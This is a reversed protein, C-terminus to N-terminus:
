VPVRVPVASATTSENGLEGNGNEGWCFVQDDVTTACTHVAGTTIATAAAPLAIPTPETSSGGPSSTHQGWDTTGWCSVVGDETLACTHRLSASLAIARGSLSSLVPESHSDNTGEGLQGWGNEGWCYTRADELAACTHGRGAAVFAAPGPLEVQLPDAIAADSDNTYGRGLQGSTNAGWCFVDGVVTSACTHNGGAALSTMTPLDIRRPSEILDTGEEGIQGNTNRGWCYGEGGETLACTHDEGASLASVPAPIDIRVPETSPDTTGTGLQGFTNYGWCYTEGDDLAACTHERGTGLASAPASLEVSVPSYRSDATGDGLQGSANLGWCSVDGFSDACTFWGGASVTFVDNGTPSAAPVGAAAAGEGGSDPWYVAVGVAAAIVAVVAGLTALTRTSRRLPKSADPPRSARVPVTPAAAPRGSRGTAILAGRAVVTKPDDLTAVPGVQGLVSHVLPIRSSGGTLYIAQLRDRPVGGQTLATRVLSAAQEVQPAILDEFEDRTLLLNERWPGGAASITASPADSLVEKARRASEELARRAQLQEPGSGRLYEALEPNLDALQSEAWGRVLADFNKGGLGNDGVAAVVEFENDPTGRLIAVDVTGGGFDFVAIASGAPVPTSRSYFHAAARPESVTVVTSPDIGVQVAADTLVAVLDASWAEPHTLVVRSPPVADSHRLARHYVNGIVAAVLTARPVPTGHVSVAPLSVLRKPSPVYAGPDSDAANLAADGVLIDDLSRVPVSRVFVSSSMLNGHHTLSLTHIGARPDTVAAATNSTGFDIALSRDGTSM